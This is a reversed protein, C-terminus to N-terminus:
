NSLSHIPITPQSSTIERKTMGDNIRVKGARGPTFTLTTNTVNDLRVRSILADSTAFGKIQIGEQFMPHLLSTGETFDRIARISGLISLSLVAMSDFHIVGKVGVSPLGDRAM